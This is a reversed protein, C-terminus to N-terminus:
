SRVTRSTPVIVAVDEALCCGLKTMLGRNKLAGVCPERLSEDLCFDVDPPTEQPGPSVHRGQWPGAPSDLRSLLVSTSENFVTM